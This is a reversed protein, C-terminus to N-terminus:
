LASFKTGDKLSEDSFLNKFFKSLGSDEKPIEIGTGLSVLKINTLGRLYKAYIYAYFSPNNCIVGGDILRSEFGYKDVYNTM